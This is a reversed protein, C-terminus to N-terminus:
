NAVTAQKAKKNQFYEPYRSQLKNLLKKASDEDGAKRYAQVAKEGARPTVSEDDIIVTVAEYTKAADTWKEQAALIDGATVRLEANIFGDPQLTLGQQVSSQAETFKRGGLQAQALDNYSEARPGPDKLAPLLSTFAKEAGAWDNLALESKGLKGWDEPKADERRTLMRLHKVAGKYHEAAQDQPGAKEETKAKEFLTIALWHLVDYPVQGKAGGTVYSEIEGALGSTDELYYHCLMLRLSAREFYEEKNLKRALRLPEVADKYAKNEFAVSGIWFNAEAREPEPAQPYDRLYIRFTDAMGTNDGRQGLMRALQLLAAEREKAKPYDSILKKFDKIGADANQARLQCVARQLLAASLGKATPYHEILDTLTKIARDIEKTQQYCWALKALAESKQQGTLQRSKNASEYLPAAAAFDGKKFLIEAKMLYILDKKQDDAGGDLYADIEQLVNPDEARYLAKVREYGADKAYTSGPFEKGIQTLIQQADDNKGLALYSRAALMMVQPRTEAGFAKANSTWTSIVQAYKESNFAIQVLGFQAVDRWREGADLDLSKKLAEEGKATQGLDVLWLGAYITAQAKLEPNTTQNSLTQVQKLAEATRGSEKLLLALSMRSNEIFPNDQQTGVLDEYVSRAEIKQGLAELCRGSFFKSANALKPDKLRVSAKRYYPLAGSYNKDAYYLEALRYAAPGIFEGTGFQDLLTQYSTRAANVTNNRRYSEGLRFLAAQRDAGNPYLGIYKEYEPAAMEFMGRAYYSDAISLQVQDAPLPTGAPSIRIEGSPDGLDPVPVPTPKGSPRPTARQPPIDAPVPRGVPIPTAVPISTPAPTPPRRVPEARRIEPEGPRFPRLQALMPQAAVVMAALLIGSKLMGNM